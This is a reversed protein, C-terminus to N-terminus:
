ADCHTYLKDYRDPDPETACKGLGAMRRIFHEYKMWFSKPWMFTKYYFGAPFLRHFLSNVAGVDTTLSPWRNQSEAILGDYLEIQTARLNPESRNGQGLQILANPEEAGASLLGRPRHYKFSRGVLARREGAARLRPHRRSLRLVAQRRLHLAAAQRPRHPRRQPLRNVQSMPRERPRDRAPQGMEYVAYIEHTVTDRAVNFYRRCGKAHMWREYHVGKPNKRM